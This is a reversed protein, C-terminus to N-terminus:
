VGPHNYGGSPIPQVTLGRLNSLYGACLGVLAQAANWAYGHVEIVKLWLNGARIATAASAIAGAVGGIITWSSAATAALEIGLLILTDTLTELLGKIADAMELIGAAASTFDRGVSNLASVQERLLRELDGFYTEAGDAANGMWQAAFLSRTQSNISDAYATNFEALHGLANGAKIVAKWDGAFQEGVWAWPNVGCIKDAAVGLWYSPSIYQGFGVFNNVTELAHSDDPEVLVSSPTAPM